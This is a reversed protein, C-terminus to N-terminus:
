ISIATFAVIVGVIVIGILLGTIVGLLIDVTEEAENAEENLLPEILGAIVQENNLSSDTQMAPIRRAIDCAISQVTPKETKM